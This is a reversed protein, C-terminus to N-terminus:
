GGFLISSTAGINVPVTQGSSRCMPNKESQSTSGNTVLPENAPLEEWFRPHSKSAPADSSLARNAVEFAPKRQRTRMRNARTILESATMRFRGNVLYGGNEQPVVVDDQQRLYRVIDDIIM